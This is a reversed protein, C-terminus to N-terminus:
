PIYCRPANPFPFPTMEDKDKSTNERKRKKDNLRTMKAFQLYPMTKTTPLNREGPFPPPQTLSVSFDSVIAPDGAVFCVHWSKDSDGETNADKVRDIEEFMLATKQPSLDFFSISAAIREETDKPVNKWQVPLFVLNDTAMKKAMKLREKM